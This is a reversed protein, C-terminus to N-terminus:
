RLAAHHHPRGLLEVFLRQKWAKLHDFSTTVLYICYCICTLDLDLGAKGQIM